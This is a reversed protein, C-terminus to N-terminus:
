LQASQAPLSPRRRRLMPGAARFGFPTHGTWRRFANIFAASESYGLAEAIAAVPLTTTSLLHEARRRRLDEQIARLPEGEAALRRRLTRETLHLAAAVERSHCGPGRARLVERVRAGISTVGALRERTIECQTELLRLTLSNAQPLPISLAEGDLLLGAPGASLRVAVGLRAELAAAATEDGPWEVALVARNWHEPLVDRIARLGFMLDRQLYFARLEGLECQDLFHLGVRGARRSLSVRFFTYSLDLHRLLFGLGDGLDACHMVSAGLVGLTGLRLFDGVEVGLWPHELFSQLNRVVRFEQHATIWYDPDALRQAAIGSGALLDARSLGRSRGFEIVRAVGNALYPRQLLDVAAIELPVRRVGALTEDGMSGDGVM